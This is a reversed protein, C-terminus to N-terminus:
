KGNGASNEFIHQLEQGSKLRLGFLASECENIIRLKDWNSLETSAEANKMIEVIGYADDNVFCKDISNLENLM